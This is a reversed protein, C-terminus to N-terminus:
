SIRPWAQDRQTSDFTFRQNGSHLFATKRIEENCITEFGSRILANLPQPKTERWSFGVELFLFVFCFLQQARFYVLLCSFQM